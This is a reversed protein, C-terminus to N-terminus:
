ANHLESAYLRLMVAEATEVVFEKKRLYSYKLTQLFLALIIACVSVCADKDFCEVTLTM